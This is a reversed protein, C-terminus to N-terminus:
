HSSITPTAGRDGERDDDVHSLAHSLIFRLQPLRLSLKLVRIPSFDRNRSRICDLATTTIESLIPEFGVTVAM